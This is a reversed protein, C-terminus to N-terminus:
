QIVPSLSLQWPYRDILLGGKSIPCASLGVTTAIFLQGALMIIPGMLRATNYLTVEKPARSWLAVIQVPVVISLTM